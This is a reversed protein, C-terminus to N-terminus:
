YHYRYIIYQRHRHPGTHGHRRRTHPLHDHSVIRARHVETLATKFRNTCQEM